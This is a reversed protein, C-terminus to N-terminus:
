ISSDEAETIRAKIAGNGPQTKCGCTRNSALMEICGDYAHHRGEVTPPVKMIAESPPTKANPPRQKEHARTRANAPARARCNGDSGIGATPAVPEDSGGSVDVGERRRKSRPGQVV